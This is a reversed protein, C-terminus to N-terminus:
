MRYAVASITCNNGTVTGTGKISVKLLNGYALSLSIAFKIDSSLQIQYYSPTISIISGPSLTPLEYWNSGDISQYPIFEISTLSGKTVSFLLVIERVNIDVEVSLSDTYNTTLAGNFIIVEKRVYSSDFNGLVLKGM